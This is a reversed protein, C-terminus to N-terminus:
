KSRQTEELQTIRKKLQQIEAQQDKIAGVLLPVLQQM